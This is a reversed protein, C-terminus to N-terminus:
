EPYLKPLINLNDDRLYPYRPQLFRNKYFLCSFAAEYVPSSFRELFPFIGVSNSFAPNLVALSLNVSKSPICNKVPIVDKVNTVLLTVSISTDVNIFKSVKSKFLLLILEKSTVFFVFSFVKLHLALVCADSEWFNIVISKLLFGSNVVRSRMFLLSSLISKDFFVLNVEM